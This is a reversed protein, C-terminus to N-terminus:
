MSEEIHVSCLGIKRRTRGEPKGVGQKESCHKTPSTNSTPRDSRPWSCSKSAYISPSVYELIRPTSPISIGIRCTSFLSGRMLLRVTVMCLVLFTIAQLSFPSPTFPLPYVPSGTAPSHLCSTRVFSSVPMFCPHKLFKPPNVYSVDLREIRGYHRGIVYMDGVVFILHTSGCSKCTWTHLLRWSTVIAASYYYQSPIMESSESRLFRM